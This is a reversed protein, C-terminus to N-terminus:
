FRPRIEGSPLRELGLEELQETTWDEFTLSSEYRDWDEIYILDGYDIDLRDGNNM